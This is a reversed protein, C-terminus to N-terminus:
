RRIKFDKSLKKILTGRSSVSDNEEEFCKLLRQFGEFDLCNEDDLKVEAILEKFEDEDIQCGVNTLASRLDRIHVKGQGTSDFMQFTEWVAEAELLAKRNLTALLFDSFKIRGEGIYSCNKVVQDIEESALHFGNAKMAKKLSSATIFGDNESDIEQFAIRLSSIQSSSLHKIVIKLSEQMLVSKAKFKSLSKFVTSPIEHTQTNNLFWPHSLASKISIRKFVQVTLMKQLLDKASPSIQSLSELNLSKYGRSAKQYVSEICNGKFPQKGTLLFYLFVGLSWIDCSKTYSGKLVEPALYYPTGALSKLRTLNESKISMGFDCIKIISSERSEYLFNEAKLDRHVVNQSHLYNVACLLQKLIGSAEKESYSGRDVLRECVDGGTCLEMVM